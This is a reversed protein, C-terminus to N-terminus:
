QYHSSHSCATTLTRGPHDMVSTILVTNINSSNIHALYVHQQWHREQTDTVSVILVTNINSNVHAATTLRRGPHDM